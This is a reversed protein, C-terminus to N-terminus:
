ARSLTDLKGRLEDITPKAIDGVGPVALVKDCMQNITPTAAAILKALASKGEPSLKTALDGVDNLQTAAERLKPLAAQASTADTITPLVSRLTSMSSNVQSALNVGGITLDPPALGVTGTPSQVAAPRPLDAVTENAQRGTAYWLVGGLVVLAAM